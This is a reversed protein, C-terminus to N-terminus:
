KQYTGQVGRAQRDAARKGLWLLGTELYTIATSTERSQLEGVNVDKLYQIAAALVSETFFGSQRFVSEDDKNGKCFALVAPTKDVLGDNTVEYQPLVYTAGEKLTEIALPNKM